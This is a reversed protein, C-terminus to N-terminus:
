QFLLCGSPRLLYTSIHCYLTLAFNGIILMTSIYLGATYEICCNVNVIVYNFFCEINIMYLVLTALVILHLLLKIHTYASQQVAFFQLKCATSLQLM